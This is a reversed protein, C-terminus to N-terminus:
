KLKWKYRNRNTSRDHEDVYERPISITETFEAGLKEIVRISEDNETSCTIFLEDWGHLLAIEGVLRCARGAFGRGRYEEKIEYGLHCDYYFEKSDDITLRLAITGVKTDTGTLYLVCGYFPINGHQGNGDYLLKVRLDLTGDSFLAGEKVVFTKGEIYM